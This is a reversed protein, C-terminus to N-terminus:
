QQNEVRLPALVANILNLAGLRSGALIVEENISYYRKMRALINGVTELAEQWEFRQIKADIQRGRGTLYNNHVINLMENFNNGCTIACEYIERGVKSLDQVLKEEMAQLEERTMIVGIADINNNNNNNNDNKNEDKNEDTEEVLKSNRANNDGDSNIRNMRYENQNVDNM